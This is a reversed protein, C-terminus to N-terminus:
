DRAARPVRLPRYRLLRPHPAAPAERGQKRRDWVKKSHLLRLAPRRGAQQRRAASVAETGSMGTRLPQNRGAKDATEDEMMDDALVLLLPECCEERQPSCLAGDPRPRPARPLRLTKSDQPFLLLLPLSFSRHPPSIAM